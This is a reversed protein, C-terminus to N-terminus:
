CDKIDARLRFLPRNPKFRKWAKRKAESKTKAIVTCQQSYMQDITIIYTKSMGISNTDM